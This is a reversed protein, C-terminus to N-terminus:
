WLASLRDYVANARVRLTALDADNEIVEDARLRADEPDIQARMRRRVFEETLGDRAMARAVRAAEPAVVVVTVDCSRSYDSEFLLPVVHVVVSGLPAQAERENALARVRPHVIENLRDRSRKDVFVIDALAHRDLRGDPAITEPWEAAIERLADSGPAVVENALRDADIIVAGRERWMEAVASKGSGIGGTLGVRVVRM